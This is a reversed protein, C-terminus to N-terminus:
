KKTISLYVIYIVLLAIIGIFTNRLTILQKIDECLFKCTNVYFNDM